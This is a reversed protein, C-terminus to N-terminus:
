ALYIGPTIRGVKTRYSTHSAFRFDATARFISISMTSVSKEVDSSDFLRDQSSTLSVNIEDDQANGDIVVTSLVTSVVITALLRWNRARVPSSRSLNRYLFLNLLM